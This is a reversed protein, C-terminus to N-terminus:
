RKSQPRNPSQPNNSRSWSSASRSTIRVFAASAKASSHPQEGAAGAAAHASASVESFVGHIAELATAASDAAARASLTGQASRAVTENVERAVVNFGRGHEGARAAEIAANLALLNTQDAIDDIVTLIEDIRTSAERM